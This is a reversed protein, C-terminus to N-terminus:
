DVEESAICVTTHIGETQDNISILNFIQEKHTIRQRVSLGPYHRLVIRHTAIAEPRSHIELERATLQNISAWRTSQFKFTLVNAGISDRAEVIDQVTVRRRLDGARIKTRAM